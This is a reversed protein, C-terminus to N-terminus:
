IDIRPNSKLNHLHWGYTKWNLVADCIMEKLESASYGKGRLEAITYGGNTKSIDGFKGMLRPLFIFHPAPVEFIECMYRYLSYETSFEEGRIVHTTGIMNDLLVREATQWSQYPYPLWCTGMRVFYPLEPNPDDKIPKWMRYLKAHVDHVIESQVQWEDAKVELWDLIERQNDLIKQRRDAPIAIAAESTNDFRIVFKGGNDHAYHENAMLSFLHGLHLAGNSTPNWRTVIM